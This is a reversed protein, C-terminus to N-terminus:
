KVGGNGNKEIKAVAHESARYLTSVKFQMALNNDGENRSGIQLETVKLPIGASQMKFLFKAISDMSGTGSAQIHIQRLQEKSEPRDPKVSSLTLGTEKAWNRLGHLVQGEAEAPDGKLGDSLMSKWKPALQKREQFLKRGREMDALIQERQVNLLDQQETLPTLAYYDLALIALVALSGYMLGKERKSLDM